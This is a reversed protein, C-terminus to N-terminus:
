PTSRRTLPVPGTVPTQSAPASESATPTFTVTMSTSTKNRIQATVLSGTRGFSLGNASSLSIDVPAYFNGVM